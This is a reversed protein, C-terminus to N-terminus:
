PLPPQPPSARPGKVLVQNNGWVEGECRTVTGASMHSFPVVCRELKGKQANKLCCAEGRKRGLVKLLTHECELCVGTSKGVNELVWFFMKRPLGSVNENQSKSMFVYLAHSYYYLILWTFTWALQPASHTPLPEACNGLSEAAGGGSENVSCLGLPPFPPIILVQM